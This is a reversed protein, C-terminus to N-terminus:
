RQSSHSKLQKECYATIDKGPMSPHAVQVQSTCENMLNLKENESMRSAMQPTTITPPEARAPKTAQQGLAVTSAILTALALAARKM